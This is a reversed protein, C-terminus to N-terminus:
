WSCLNRFRWPGGNKRTTAWPGSLQLHDYLSPVWPYFHTCLKRDMRGEACTATCRHLQLRRALAVVEKAQEDTLTPLQARLKDARLTVAYAEAALQLAPQAKDPEHELTHCETLLLHLTSLTAEGADKRWCVRHSHPLGTEPQVEFM